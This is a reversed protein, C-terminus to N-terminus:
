LQPPYSFNPEQIFINGGNTNLSDNLRYSTLQPGYGIFSEGWRPVWEMKLETIKYVLTDNFILKLDTENTIPKPLNFDREKGENDRIKELLVVYTGLLSDFKSNKVFSQVTVSDYTEPSFGYTVVPWSFLSAVCKETPPSPIKYPESCGVLM